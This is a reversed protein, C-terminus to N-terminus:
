KPRLFLLNQLPVSDTVDSFVIEWGPWNKEMYDITFSSDGWDTPGGHKNDKYSIFAYGTNDHSALLQKRKQESINGGSPRGLWYRRPRYTVCVLGNDSIRERFLKMANQAVDANMHTFVSYAYILDFKTDGFPIHDPKADIVAHQGPVNYDECLQISMKTPDVGYLNSDHTFYPMMRLMRGWGCGYDLVKMNLDAKLGLRYSHLMMLNLFDYTHKALKPGSWGTWKLQREKSVMKAVSPYDQEYNLNPDLRYVLKRFEKLSKKRLNVFSDQKSMTAKHNM